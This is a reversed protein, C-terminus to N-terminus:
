ETSENKDIELTFKFQRRFISVTKSFIFDSRSPRRVKKGRLMLEVGKNIEFEQRQKTKVELNEELDESKKM